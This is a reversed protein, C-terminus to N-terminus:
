YRNPAKGLVIEQRIWYLKPTLYEGASDSPFISKWVAIASIFMSVALMQALSCDM